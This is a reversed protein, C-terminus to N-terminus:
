SDTTSAVQEEPTTDSTATKSDTHKLFGEFRILSDGDFYLTIVKRNSKKREFSYTHVYDWRSRDFPNLALPHGMIYIVQEKTMGPKLKDIMKQTVLNGQQIDIRHLKVLGCGTVLFVVCFVCVTRKLILRALKMPLNSHYERFLNTEYFPSSM